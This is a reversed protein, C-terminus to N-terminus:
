KAAKQLFQQFLGLNQNLLPQIIGFQTEIIGVRTTNDGFFFFNPNNM